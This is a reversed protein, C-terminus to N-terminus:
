HLIEIFIPHKKLNMSSESTKGMKIAVKSLFELPRLLASTLAKSSPYNLDVESLASTLLTVFNKEVMIRAVPSQAENSRNYVSPLASKTSLIKLCLDALALFRGYKIDAPNPSVIADKFSRVIGDLVFKKVQYLDSHAVKDDAVEDQTCLTTILSITLAVEKHQKRSEIDLYEQPDHVGNYPLLDNLLHNLFSSRYKQPTQSEKQPTHPEKPHKKARNYTMVDSQCQPYSSLLENLCELLFCRYVFTKDDETPLCGKEKTAEATGNDPAKDISMDIAVGLDVSDKSSSFRLSMLEEILFHILTESVSSLSLLAEKHDINMDVDENTSDNYEQKENTSTEIKEEAKKHLTIQPSRGKPDYKSLRCISKAAEIFQQSDRLAVPGLNRVFTSVDVVRPRPHTFWADIKQEMISKLVQASEIAHRLIVVTYAPQGQFGATGEKYSSFLLPVEGSKVLNIAFTHDRTLRVLIRFIAHNANECTSSELLKLCGEMLLERDSNSVEPTLTASESHTSKGDETDFELKVSKPEDALSICAEIVLLASTVWLPISSSGLHIQASVMKILIPVYRESHKLAKYQVLGDNLLLALLRLYVSMVRNDSDNSNSSDFDVIHNIVDNLIEDQDDKLFLVLLDRVDFVIDESEHLLGISRSVIGTKMSLRIENYEEYISHENEKGKASESESIVSTEGNEQKVAEENTSSSVTGLNRSVLMDELGPVYDLIHMDTNSPNSNTLDRSNSAEESSHIAVAEPHTLLYEAARGVHNMCRTLAVEAAGQSFGMDLLQQIRNEDPVLPRSNFVSGSGSSRPFGTSKVDREREGEGKLIQIINQLTSKVVSSPCHKIYDDQLLGVIIPFIKSRIDVLFEHPDFSNKDSDKSIMNLLHPSEHLLKASSLLQFLNLTAEITGNVQTLSQNTSQDEKDTIQAHIDKSSAWLRNLIDFVCELGGTKVFELVLMAQLCTQNREDLFLTSLLNLMSTFYGFQETKFSENERLVRSWSLHEKAIRAISSALKVALEKQVPEMVRRTVLIKSLGQFLPTLCTPIKSVLFKLCKTNKVKPCESMSIDIEPSENNDANKKSTDNSQTPDKENFTDTIHESTDKKLEKKSTYWEKPVTNNFIVNEWVCTRHLEGLMSVVQDGVETTFAGIITSVNKSHSFVPTCYIGSLLGVFGHLTILSRFIQTAEDFKKHDAYPLDLYNVIIGGHNNAKLFSDSAELSQHLENLIVTVVADADVESMVRFLHSLSYSASSAPFDYPIMPLSYFKLLVDVGQVKLFEKCHSTNQFLGELFRAAIEILSVVINDEKGNSKSVESDIMVSDHSKPFSDEGELQTNSQSVHLGIDGVTKGDRPINKGMEIIKNIMTIISSMVDDQLSPHHRILEDISTGLVAPVDGDQLADLHQLSTFISFFQEIHQSSKFAELGTENLCIAGFAHPISSIVDASNPIDKMITELFTQPLKAEQLIPLSTPENHIFTAMINIVLSFLSNGFIKPHELILRLSQPFVSDVLNRLGDATGSTQMMHLVFKLMSKIFSARENPIFVSNSSLGSEENADMYNSVDSQIRNVLITIGNADCFTTFSNPFGYVIGDLLGVIRTASKIHQTERSDLISLLVPIIGATIVMNGGSQTTIIYGILSLLADVFDQPYYTEGAAVSTSVKRLLYMLIGHNTSAGMATLVDTLRSRYRGIADIAFLAVTQIDFPVDHDPHLLEALHITVDPEYLFFKSQAVTETVLHAMISIALIRIRLLKKREDPDNLGRVLRIRHYLSLTKDSPVQHQEILEDLLELDSKQMGAPNPVTIIVLGESLPSGDAEKQRHPPTPTVPPESQNEKDTKHGKLSRYFQFTLPTLDDPIKTTSSSLQLLELGYDQTTWSQAFTLIRDQTVSFSARLSRQSSLRQAPRLMLRLTSELITLDNTHLLSNLHEYSNYINRNTCNELLLRSLHLVGKLLTFTSQSFPKQQIKKLDYEQCITELIQDFRDLVIVWNYLDGRSFQWHKISELTNALDSDNSTSLTDILEKM